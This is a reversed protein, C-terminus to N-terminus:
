TGNDVRGQLKLSEARMKEPNMVGCDYWLEFCYKCIPEKCMIPRIGVNDKGECVACVLQSHLADIELSIDAIRKQLRASKALIETNTM